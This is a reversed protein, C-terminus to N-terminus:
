NTTDDQKVGPGASWPNSLLHHYRDVILRLSRIKSQEAPHFPPRGCLQMAPRLWDGRRDQTQIGSTRATSSCSRGVRLDITPLM